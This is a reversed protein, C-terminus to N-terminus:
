SDPPPNTLHLDVRSGASGLSTCGKQTQCVSAKVTIDQYQGTILADSLSEDVGGSPDPPVTGGFIVVCQSLYACPDETCSAAGQRVKIRGCLTVFPIGSPLAMVNIGIYGVERIKSATVHVSLTTESNDKAVSASIQVASNLQSDTELRMAGYMSTALLIISAMIFVFQTSIAGDKLKPLSALLAVGGVAALVFGDVLSDKRNGTIAGSPIKYIVFAGLALLLFFVGAMCLWPVRHDSPIAVGVAAALTALLLTLAILTAQRTDNRLVTTIEDSRLGLFSLVGAFGALLFGLLNQTDKLPSPPGGANANDPTDDVSVSM